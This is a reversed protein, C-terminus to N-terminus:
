PVAPPAAARRAALQRERLFAYLGAAIILLSGAITWGDPREAFFTVGILTAFLLRSYRFPAITALEGTRTAATLALYGALTFLVGLPAWFLGDSTLPSFGPGILLAATAALPVLSFGWAALTLSPIARPAARTTLDRASLAVAAAVAILANPDFGQLGPRVIMLMGVLGAVVAAWRRWGVREGFFLAAGLTVLIPNMQMLASVTTLPVLSIAFTITIAAVGESLSRGVVAPHFFTRSFLPERRVLAVASFILATAGGLLLIVQPAPMHEAMLKVVTDTCALGLMALVMLAIGKINETM